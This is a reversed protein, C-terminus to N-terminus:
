PNLPSGPAPWEEGRWCMEWFQWDYLSSLMFLEIIRNKKEPPLNESLREMEARFWSAVEVYEDCMQLAIWEAYPHDDTLEYEDALRQGISVYSWPRPLLVAATDPGDGAAATRVLFDSHARTTPAMSAREIDNAVIGLQVGYKRHLEMERTLILDLVAAYWKMSDVYDATAAAWAVARAYEKLLLFSQVVWRRLQPEELSGAGIAKVFPHERQARLIARASSELEETFLIVM